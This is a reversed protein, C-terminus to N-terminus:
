GIGILDGKTLAREALNEKVLDTEVLGEGVLNREALNREVLYKNIWITEKLNILKRRGKIKVAWLFTSRPNPVVIGSVMHIWPKHFQDKPVIYTKWQNSQPIIYTNVKVEPKV